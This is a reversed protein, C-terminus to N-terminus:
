RITTSTTPPLRRELDAVQDKLDSVSQSKELRELRRSVDSLRTIRDTWFQALASAIAIAAIAAPIWISIRRTKQEEDKVIRTTRETVSLMDRSLRDLREPQVVPALAHGPHRLNYACGVPGGLSFFVVTVIKRGRRLDYARRSMNIVTFSLKGKFGPDIHGPNTMLLGDEAVSAPPFGIAALDSPVELREATVVVATEGPGLSLEMRPTHAGGLDDVKSEPVYIGGITLDISAPQVPSLASDADSPLPVGPLIESWRITLEQDSLM